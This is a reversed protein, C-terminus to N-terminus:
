AVADLGDVRILEDSPEPVFLGLAHEGSRPEMSRAQPLRRLRRRFVQRRELLAPEDLRHGPQPRVLILKSPRGHVAVTVSRNAFHYSCRYGWAARRRPPRSRPPTEDPPVDPARIT